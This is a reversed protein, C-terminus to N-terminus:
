RVFKYDRRDVREGRESEGTGEAGRFDAKIRVARSRLSCYNLNRHKGKRHLLPPLLLPSYLSSVPLIDGDRLLM